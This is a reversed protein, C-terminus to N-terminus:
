AARRLAQRPARAAAFQLAASLTQESLSFEAGRYLQADILYQAVAAAATRTAMDTREILEAVTEVADARLNDLREALFSRLAAGTLSSADLAYQV